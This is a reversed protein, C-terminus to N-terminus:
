LKFQTIFGFILIIIIIINPALVEHCHLSTSVLSKSHFMGIEVPNKWTGNLGIFRTELMILKFSSQSFLDFVYEYLTICM